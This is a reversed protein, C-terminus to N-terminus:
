RTVNQLRTCSIKKHDSTNCCQSTRWEAILESKLQIAKMRTWQQYFTLQLLRPTTTVAPLKCGYLRECFDMQIHLAQNLCQPAGHWFTM